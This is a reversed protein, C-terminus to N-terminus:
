SQPKEPTQKKFKYAPLCTKMEVGLSKYEPFQNNRSMRKDQAKQGNKKLV